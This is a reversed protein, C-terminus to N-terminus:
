VGSEINLPVAMSCEEGARDSEGLPQLTVLGMESFLTALVLTVLGARESALIRDAATADSPRTSFSLSSFASLMAVEGIDREDWSFRVSSAWVITLDLLPLGVVLSFCDEM